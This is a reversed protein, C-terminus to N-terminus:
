QKNNVKNHGDTNHFVLSTIKRSDHM